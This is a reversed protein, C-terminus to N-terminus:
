ENHNRGSANLDSAQGGYFIVKHYWLRMYFALRIYSSIKCIKVSIKIDEATNTKKMM